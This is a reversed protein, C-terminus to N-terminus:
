DKLPTIAESAKKTIVFAELKQQIIEFTNISYSVINSTEKINNTANNSDEKVALQRSVLENKLIEINKTMDKTYEFVDEGIMELYNHILEIAGLEWGKKMNRMVERLEEHTYNGSVIPTKHSSVLWYEAYFDYSNKVLHYQLWGSIYYTDIGESFITDLIYNIKKLSERNNENYLSVIKKMWTDFLLKQLNHSDTGLGFDKKITFEKKYEDEHGGELNEIGNFTIEVILEVVWKTFTDERLYNDTIEKKDVVDQLYHMILYRSFGFTGKNEVYKCLDIILSRIINKIYLYDPAKKLETIKIFDKKLPEIISKVLNLSHRSAQNLDRKDINKKFVQLFYELNEFDKVEFFYKIKANIKDYFTQYESNNLNYIENDKKSLLMEVKQTYGNAFSSTYNAKSKPDFFYDIIEIEPRYRWFKEFRIFVFFFSSAFVMVHVFLNKFSFILIFAIVVYIFISGIINRLIFTEEEPYEKLFIAEELSKEHKSLITNYKSKKTLLDQFAVIIFPIALAVIISLFTLAFSQGDNIRLVHEIKKAHEHFHELRM